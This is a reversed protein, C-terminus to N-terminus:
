RRRSGPSSYQSRRSRGAELYDLFDPGSTAIRASAQADSRAWIAYLQNPQPFPLPDVLVHCVLSFIATNIGFGLTLILATLLTLAPSKRMQRLAYRLDQLLNELFPLGQEADYDDRIAVAAGFKLMAQRRAEALTMGSRLNEETQLAFHEEIGGRLRQDDRRLSSFTKLRKLFRRLSRM